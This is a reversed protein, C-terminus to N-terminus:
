AAHSRLWVRKECTSDYWIKLTKDILQKYKKRDGNMGWSLVWFSKVPKEGENVIGGSSVVITEWSVPEDRPEDVLHTKFHLLLIM